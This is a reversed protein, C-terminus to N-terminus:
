SDTGTESRSEKQKGGKKSKEKTDKPADEDEEYEGDIMKRVDEKKVGRMAALLSIVCDTDPGDGDAEEEAEELEDLLEYVQFLQQIQRRHHKRTAGFLLAAQIRAGMGVTNITQMIQPWEQGLMDEVAAKGANNFVLMYKEDDYEFSTYRDPSAM